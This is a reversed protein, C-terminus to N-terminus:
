NLKLAIFAFQIQSEVRSFLTVNSMHILFPVRELLVCLYIRGLVALMIVSYTQAVCRFTSFEIFNVRTNSDM